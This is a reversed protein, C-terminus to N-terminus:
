GEPVAELTHDGLDTKLRVGGIVTVADNEVNNKGWTRAQKQLKARGPFANHATADFVSPCYTEQTGPVRKDFHDGTQYRLPVVDPIV